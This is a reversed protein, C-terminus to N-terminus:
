DGFVFEFHMGERKSDSVFALSRDYVGNGGFSLDLIDATSAYVVEKSDQKGLRFGEIGLLPIRDDECARIVETATAADFLVM